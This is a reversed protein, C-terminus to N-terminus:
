KDAPKSLILLPLLKYPIKHTKAYLYNSAEDDYM